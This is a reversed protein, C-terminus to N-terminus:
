PKPYVYATAQASLTVQNNPTNTVQRNTSNHGGGTITIGSLQIALKAQELDLLYALIDPYSGTVQLQATLATLKNQKIPQKNPLAINQELHRARAIQELFVIFDLEHGQELFLTQLESTLQRVKGLNTKSKRLNTTREYRLELDHQLKFITQNFSTISRVSPLIILFVFLCLTLLMGGTFFIIKKEHYALM